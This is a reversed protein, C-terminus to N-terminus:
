CSRCTVTSSYCSRGRVTLSYCSRGQCNFQLLIQGSLQVTVLDAGSLCIIYTTNMGMMQQQGVKKDWSKIGSWPFQFVMYGKCYLNIFKNHVSKNLCCLNMTSHYLFPGLPLLPVRHSVIGSPKLALMKKFSSNNKFPSNM